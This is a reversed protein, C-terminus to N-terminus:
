ANKFSKVIQEINKSESSAILHGSDSSFFLSKNKGRGGRTASGGGRMIEVWIWTHHLHVKVKEPSTRLYVILDVGLDLQPCSVLYDFWESIVAHEASSM